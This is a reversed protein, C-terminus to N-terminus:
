IRILHLKLDLIASWVCNQSPNIRVNCIEKKTVKFTRLTPSYSMLSNDLRNMLDIIEINSTNESFIEFEIDVVYSLPTILWPNYGIRGYHIFPFPTDEPIFSLVQINMKESLYTCYEKQLEQLFKM